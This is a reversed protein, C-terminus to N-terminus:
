PGDGGAPGSGLWERLDRHHSAVVVVCVAAVPGVAPDGAALLLLPALAFAVLGSRTFRRLVAYAPLFPIVLAVLATPALVAFGGLATAVGKGGQFGLQLPLVHGIVVALLAAAPVVGGFELLRAAGVPLAGKGCDLLLAGVFGARGLVRGANTAGANGSGQERVDGRGSLRVLYYAACFGGLIYSGAVLGIEAATVSQM